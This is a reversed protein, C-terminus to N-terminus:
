GDLAQGRQAVQQDFITDFDMPQLMLPMFGGRVVLNSLTERVYPFIAEPVRAGLMRAQEEDPLDGVSVLAGVHVEAVFLSKNEELRADATVTLVVERAEPRSVLGNIRTQININLEPTHQETFAAPSLPSEFSCDKLYIQELTFQGSSPAAYTTEASHEPTDIM